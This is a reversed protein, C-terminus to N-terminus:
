GCCTSLGSLVSAFYEFLLCAICAVEFRNNVPAAYPRVAMQVCIWLTQWLFHGPWPLCDPLQLLLLGLLAVFVLSPLSTSDPGYDSAGVLAAFLLKKAFRMPGVWLARWWSLRVPQQWFRVAHALATREAGHWLAWGVLAPFALGFVALTVASFAVM